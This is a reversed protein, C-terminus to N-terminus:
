VAPAPAHAAELKKVAHLVTTHNRLGCVRGIEPLSAATERHSRWMARHRATVFHKKRQQGIMQAWTMNAFNMEEIFIALVLRLHPAFVEPSPPASVAILM